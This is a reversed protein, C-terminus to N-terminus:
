YNKCPTPLTKNSIRKNLFLYYLNGVIVGCNNKEELM